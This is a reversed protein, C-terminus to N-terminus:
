WDVGTYDALGRPSTATPAAVEPGNKTDIRGNEPRSVPYREARKGLDSHCDHSCLAWRCGECKPRCGPAAQCWGSVSM